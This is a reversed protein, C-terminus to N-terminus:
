MDIKLIEIEIELAKETNTVSHKLNELKVKLNENHKKSLIQKCKQHMDAGIAKHAGKQM